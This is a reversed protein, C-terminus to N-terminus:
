KQECESAFSRMNYMKVLENYREQAYYLNIWLVIISTYVILMHIRYIM